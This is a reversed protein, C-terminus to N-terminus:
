GRNCLLPNPREIPSVLFLMLTQKLKPTLILLSIQNMSRKKTLKTEYNSGDNQREERSNRSCASPCAESAFTQSAAIYWPMWSWAIFLM